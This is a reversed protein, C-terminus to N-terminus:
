LEIVAAVLKYCMLPKSGDAPAWPKTMSVTLIVNKSLKEGALLRRTTSSDTIKLYYEKGGVKFRARWRNQNWYDPEFLCSNPMVLQLSAWEVPTKAELVETAVRDDDSHLVPSTNDCYKALASRKMRSTVSFGWKRIIRNERQYKPVEKPAVLEIEMIDLPSLFSRNVFCRATPVADSDKPVPRIWEGTDLDIGAICQGGARESNALCVLRCM